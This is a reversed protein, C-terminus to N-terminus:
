APVAIGHPHPGVQITTIPKNSAVDIVTVDDGASNTVYLKQRVTAAPSSCICVLGLLCAALCRIMSADGQSHHPVLAAAALTVSQIRIALSRMIEHLQTLGAMGSGRPTLSGNWSAEHRM